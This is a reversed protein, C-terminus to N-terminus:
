VHAVMKLEYPKRIFQFEDRVLQVRTPPSALPSAMPPLRPVCFPVLSASFIDFLLRTLVLLTSFAVGYTMHFTPCFGGPCVGLGWSM